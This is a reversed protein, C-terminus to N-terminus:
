QIGGDTPTDASAQGGLQTDSSKSSASSKKLKKKVFFTVIAIVLAIFLLMSSFIYFFNTWSFVNVNSDDDSSDSSTTEVYLNKIIATNNAVAATVEESETEENYVDEDIASIDIDSVLAWGAFSTGDSEGLEFKLSFSSISSSGTRVYITYTQWDSNNLNEFTESIGNATVNLGKTGMDGSTKVAFTV